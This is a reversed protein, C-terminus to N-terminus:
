INSFEKVAKSYKNDYYNVIIDKLELDITFDFARTSIIVPNGDLKKLQDIIKRCDDMTQKNEHAKEYQELTM